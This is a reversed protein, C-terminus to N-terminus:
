SHVDQVSMQVGRESMTNASWLNVGGAPKFKVGGNPRFYNVQTIFTTPRESNTTPSRLLTFHKLQHPEAGFGSFSLAAAGSPRGPPTENAPKM